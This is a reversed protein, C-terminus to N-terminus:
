VPPQYDAYPVLEVGWEMLYAAFLAANEMSWAFKALPRGQCDYLVNSGTDPGLVVGAVEQASFRRERRLSPTTRILEGDVELVSGVKFRLPIEDGCPLPMGDPRCNYLLGGAYQAAAYRPDKAWVPDTYLLLRKQCLEASLLPLFCAYLLTEAYDMLSLNRRVVEWAAGLSDYYPLAELLLMAPFAPLVSLMACLRVAHYAFRKKRLGRFQWYGLCAAPGTLFGGLITLKGGWPWDRAGAILLFWATSALSACLFSGLVGRLANGPNDPSNATRM